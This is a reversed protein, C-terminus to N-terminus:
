EFKVKGGYLAFSPKMWHMESASVDDEQQGSELATIMHM